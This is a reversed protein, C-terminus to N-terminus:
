AASTASRYRRYTKEQAAAAPKQAAAVATRCRRRTKDYATAIL